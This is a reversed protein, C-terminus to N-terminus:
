PPIADAAQQLAQALPGPARAERLGVAVLMEEVAQAFEPVALAADLLREKEGPGRAGDIRRIEGRLRESRLEVAREAFADLRELQEPTLKKFEEEDPFLQPDRDREASGPGWHPKLSPGPASQQAPAPDCPQQRHTKYCDVSCYKARCTPCKYKGDATSCVVCKGAAAM